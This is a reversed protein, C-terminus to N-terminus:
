DYRKLEEPTNINTFTRPSPDLGKIRDIPLFYVNKLQSLATLIKGEGRGVAERIAALMPERRYVAHLPEVMGNEWRPVVADYGTFAIEFLADVVRENIFPM